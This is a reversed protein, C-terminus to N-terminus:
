PRTDGRYYYKEEVPRMAYNCLFGVLLLGCLILLVLELPDFAKWKLHRDRQLVLSEPEEM